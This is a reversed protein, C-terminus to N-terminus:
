KKIEDTGSENKAGEEGFLPESPLKWFEFVYPLRDSPETSWHHIRCKVRAKELNNITVTCYFEKGEKNMDPGEIPEKPITICEEQCIYGAKRLSAKIHWPEIVWPHDKNMVVSLNLRELMNVTQFALVYNLIRIFFYFQSSVRQAFPSSHEVESKGEDKPAYKAINEETKYVALGPLLLKNYAFNSKALIVDGKSGVGEVFTKLIVEVKKQKSTM